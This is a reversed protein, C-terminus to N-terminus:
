RDTAYFITKVETYADLAHPGLERGYGSQKFGGFPTTVRVSTNANISLVGTEVARAVRLARAGDRTWISGSLGYITDNALRIAEAEDSFSIVAAIPGFVEEKAVRDSPKVPALVTPAFWFGAGEPANGRFAIPAQGDLFSGVAERQAASILPGMQTTEELPDGVRLAKVQPELLELFGDLVDEQVLIRSRACCDQGANGFVALPAAAAAAELDADAFVINASKGGLELTVRKITAAAGAAIQRGVETSGTFAIKAVDPHEVLRRGVTSGAGVVVNVVGEPIGADIAIQEFRLATMPTLVAPKLVVTNGAALAPALKWSAILLPFNWPTILGVVGLPERVTFAQGGAVPITDGLLREPAGAYYHFTDVVMEIEGRADAVPKGANRAELLALEEHHHELAAALERLRQARVAPTLASWAPYSARARAVAANVQAEDAPAIEALVAETAPELVTIMSMSAIPTAM